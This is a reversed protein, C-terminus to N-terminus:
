LSNFVKTSWIRLTKNCYIRKFYPSILFFLSYLHFDTPSSYLNRSITHLISEYKGGNAQACEILLCHTRKTFRLDRTRKRIEHKKSISVCIHNCCVSDIWKIKNPKYWIQTCLIISYWGIISYFRNFIRILAHEVWNTKCFM